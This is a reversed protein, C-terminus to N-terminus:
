YNFPAGIQIALTGSQTDVNSFPLDDAHPYLTRDGTLYPAYIRFDQIVLRPNKFKPKKSSHLLEEGRFIQLDHFIAYPTLESCHLSSGRLFFCNKSNLSLM